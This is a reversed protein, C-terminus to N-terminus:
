TTFRKGSLVDVLVVGPGHAARADAMSEETLRPPNRRYEAIFAEDEARRTENTASVDLGPVGIHAALDVADPFPVAGNSRWRLVGGDCSTEELLSKALREAEGRCPHRPNELQLNKIYDTM